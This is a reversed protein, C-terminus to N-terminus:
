VNFVEEVTMDLKEAIAARIKPTKRVGNIVKSVDGKDFGFNKIIDIQKVGKQLMLTKVKIAVAASNDAPAQTEVVETSAEVM